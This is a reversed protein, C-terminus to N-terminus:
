YLLNLTLINNWNKKLNFDLLNVSHSEKDNETEDIFNLKNKILRSQFYKKREM